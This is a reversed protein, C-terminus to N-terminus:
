GGQGRDEKGASGSSREDDYWAMGAVRLAMELRQIDQVRNGDNETGVAGPDRFLISNVEYHDVEEDSDEHM